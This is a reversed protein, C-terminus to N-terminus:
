KDDDDDDDDDDDGAAHNLVNQINRIVEFNLIVRIVREFGREKMM